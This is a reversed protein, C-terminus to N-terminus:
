SANFRPCDKTQCVTWMIPLQNTYFTFGVQVQFNMINRKGRQQVTPPNNVGLGILFISGVRVVTAYLRPRPENLL